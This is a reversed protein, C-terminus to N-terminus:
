DRRDVFGPARTEAPGYARLASAGTALDALETRVAAATRLLAEQSRRDAELAARLAPIIPAPAGATLAHLLRDRQELFREASDLDGAELAGALAESVRALEHAVTLRIM